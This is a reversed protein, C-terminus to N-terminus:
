FQKVIKKEVVRYRGEELSTKWCGPVHTFPLHTLAFVSVRRSAFRLARASIPKQFLSKFAVSRALNLSSRDLTTASNICYIFMNKNRVDLYTHLDFNNFYILVVFITIFSLKNIQFDKLNFYIM